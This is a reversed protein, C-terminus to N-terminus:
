QIRYTIGSLVRFENVSDGRSREISALLSIRRPM